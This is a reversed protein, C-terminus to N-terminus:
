VVRYQLSERAATSRYAGGRFGLHQASERTKWAWKFDHMARSVPDGWIDLEEM